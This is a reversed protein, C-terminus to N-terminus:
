VLAAGRPPINEDLLPWPAVEAAQSMVRGALTLQTTLDAQISRVRAESSGRIDSQAFLPVVNQFVIPEMESPEGLRVPLYDVAMEEIGRPHNGIEPVAPPM